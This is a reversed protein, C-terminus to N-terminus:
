AEVTARIDVVAVAVAVVQEPGRLQVFQGECAERVEVEHHRRGRQLAM